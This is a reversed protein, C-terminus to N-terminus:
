AKSKVMPKERLTNGKYDNLKAYADNKVITLNGTHKFGNQPIFNIIEEFSALTIKGKEVAKEALNITNRIVYKFAVSGDIEPNSKKTTNLMNLMKLYDKVDIEKSM